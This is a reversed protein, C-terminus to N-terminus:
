RKTLATGDITIFLSTCEVVGRIAIYKKLHERMTKQVPVIRERYTKANRIHIAEEKLRLDSLEVGILENARIGTELLLLIMVYDRLGTFTRLDPQRLLKELQEASFTQVISKRDKLLKIDVM